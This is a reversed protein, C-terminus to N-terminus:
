VPCNSLQEQCVNARKNKDESRSPFILEKEEEVTKEDAPANEASTISPVAETTAIPEDNGRGGGWGRRKRRRTREEEEEEGGRWGGRRKGEGGCNDTKNAVSWLIAKTCGDTNLLTDATPSSKENDPFGPLLGEFQGAV